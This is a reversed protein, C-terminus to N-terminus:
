SLAQTQDSLERENQQYYIRELKLFIVNLCFNVNVLM